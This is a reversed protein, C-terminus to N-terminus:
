GVSSELWQDGQQVPLRVSFIAGHGRSRNRNVRPSGPSEPFWDLDGGLTQLIARCLALATGTGVEGHSGIGRETDDLRFLAPVVAEAVGPGNDAVEFGPQGDTRERIEIQDGARCFKVANNILNDLLTDLLTPDAWCGRDSPLCNVLQIGKQRARDRYADYHSEVVQRLNLESEGGAVLGAPRRRQSELRELLHGLQQQLTVIGPSANPAIALFALSTLHGRLDHAILSIIQDRHQNVHALQRTREAVQHELRDLYMLRLDKVRQRATDRERRALFIRDALALNLLAMDLFFGVPYALTLVLPPLGAVGLSFLLIPLSGLVGLLYAPAFLRTPSYRRWSKFISLIVVADVILGSVNILPSFWPSNPAILSLCLFLACGWELVRYLPLIRPWYSTLDLFQRTARLVFWLM